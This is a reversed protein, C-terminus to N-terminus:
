YKGGVEKKLARLYEKKSRLALDPDQGKRSTPPHSSNARLIRVTVEDGVALRRALWTLDERPGPHDDILGGVEITIREEGQRVHKRKVFSVITTLVGTSGIGARVVRKGNIVIDFVIM